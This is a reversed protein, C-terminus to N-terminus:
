EVGCLEIKCLELYREALESIGHGKRKIWIITNAPINSIPVASIGLKRICHPAVGTGISFCDTEEMLITIAGNDQVVLEKEWEEPPFWEESFDLPTLHGQYFTSCPYARLEEFSMTEREALPHSSAFFASPQLSCLVEYDLNRHRLERLTRMRNDERYSLIGIESTGRAVEDMVDLKRSDLCRLRYSNGLEKSLQALASEVFYFHTNSVSFQYKKGKRAEYRDEMYHAQEVLSQADAAFEEGQATLIMGSHSRAFIDFGIEEELNRITESLTPQSVYLRAAAQGLSGSEAVALVYELQKITM